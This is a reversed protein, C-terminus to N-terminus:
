LGFFLVHSRWHKVAASPSATNRVNTREGNPESALPAYGPISPEVQSRMARLRHGISTAV